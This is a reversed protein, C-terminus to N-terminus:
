CSESWKYKAQWGKESLSTGHAGAITTAQLVVTVGQGRPVLENNNNAVSSSLPQILPMLQYPTGVLVAALAQVM